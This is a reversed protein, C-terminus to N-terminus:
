AEPHAASRPGHANPVIDFLPVAFDAEYGITLWEVSAKM